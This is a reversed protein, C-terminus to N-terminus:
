PGTDHIRETQHGNSYGAQPNPAIKRAVHYRDFPTVQMRIIVEFRICSDYADFSDNDHMPFRARLVSTAGTANPMTLERCLVLYDAVATQPIAKSDM